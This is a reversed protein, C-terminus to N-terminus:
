NPLLDMIFVAGLINKKKIILRVWFTVYKMMSNGLLGSLLPNVDGWALMVIGM